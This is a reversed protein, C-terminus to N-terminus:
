KLILHELKLNLEFEFKINWFLMVEVKFNEFSKKFRKNSILESIILEWVNLSYTFVNKWLYSSSQLSPHCLILVFRAETHKLLNWSLLTKTTVLATPGLLISINWSFAPSDSWCMESSDTTISFSLQSCLSSHLYTISFFYTTM